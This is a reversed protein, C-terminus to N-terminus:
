KLLGLMGNVFSTAISTFGSNGTAGFLTGISGIAANSVEEVTQLVTKGTVSTYFNGTNQAITAVEGVINRTSSSVDTLYSSFSYSGKATTSNLGGKFKNISEKITTIWKDFENKIQADMESYSNAVNVLQNALANFTEEIETFGPQLEKIANEFQYEYDYYAKYTDIDKCGNLFVNFVEMISTAIKKIETSSDNLVTLNVKKQDSFLQINLKM